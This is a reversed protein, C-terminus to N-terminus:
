PFSLDKCEDGRAHRIPLDASLEEDGFLSGADVDRVDQSLESHGAPDLRRRDSLPDTRGSGSRLPPARHAARSSLGIIDVHLDGDEDVVVHRGEVGDARVLDEASQGARFRDDDALMTTRNAAVGLAEGENGVGGDVLDLCGVDEDDGAPEAGM